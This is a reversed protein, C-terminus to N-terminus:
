GMTPEDDDPLEDDDFSERQGRQSSFRMSLSPDVTTPPASLGDVPAGAFTVDDLETQAALARIDLSAETPVVRPPPSRHSDQLATPLSDNVDAAFDDLLADGDALPSTWEDQDAELHDPLPPAEALMAQAMVEEHSVRPFPRTPRLEDLRERTKASPLDRSTSALEGSRRTRRRARPEKRADLDEAGLARAGSPGPAGILKGPFPEEASLSIAKGSLTSWAARRVWIAHPSVDFTAPAHTALAELVPHEDLGRYATCLTTTGLQGFLAELEAALQDVDDPRTNAVLPDLPDFVLREIARRGCERLLIQRLAALTQHPDPSMLAGLRSVDFLLLQGSQEFPSLDLGLQAWAQKRLAEATHTTVVGAAEGGSLAVRLFCLAATTKGGGPAGWWIAIERAPLGGLERDLPGIGSLALEWQQM